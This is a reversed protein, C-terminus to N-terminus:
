PKAAAHRSGSRVKTFLAREKGNGFRQGVGAEVTLQGRRGTPHEWGQDCFELRRVQVAAFYLLPAVV